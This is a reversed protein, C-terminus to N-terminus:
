GTQNKKLGSELGLDEDDDCLTLYQELATRVVESKGADRARCHDELHWALPAPLRVTISVTGVEDLPPRPM